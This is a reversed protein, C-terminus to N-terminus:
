SGGSPAAVTGERLAESLTSVVRLNGFLHTGLGRTVDHNDTVLTLGGGNVRLRRSHRLLVGFVSSELFPVDLLDIIVDRAGSEHLAELERDIEPAQAVDLDGRLTVVFVDDSLQASTLRFRLHNM